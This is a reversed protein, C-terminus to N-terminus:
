ISRRMRCPHSLSRRPCSPSPSPGSIRREVLRRDRIKRDALCLSTRLGQGSLVTVVVRLRRTPGGERDPRGTGPQDQVKETQDRVKVTQDHAKVMQDRANEPLNAMRRARVPRAITGWNEASASMRNPIKGRPATKQRFGGM